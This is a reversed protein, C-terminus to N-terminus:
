VREEMKRTDFSRIVEFMMEINIPKSIHGDMGAQKCKRIDEEFADATMAIVPIRAKERDPLRRIKGVAELGDMVPMHIDMLVM